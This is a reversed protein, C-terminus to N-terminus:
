KFEAPRFVGATVDADLTLNLTAVMIWEGGRDAVGLLLDLDPETM